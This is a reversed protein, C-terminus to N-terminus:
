KYREILEKINVITYEGDRDKSEADRLKQRLRRNEEKLRDTEDKNNENAQNM